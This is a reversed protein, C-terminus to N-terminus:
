HGRFRYRALRFPRTEPRCTLLLANEEPREEMFVEIDVNAQPRWRSADGSKKPLNPRKVRQIQFYLFYFGCLGCFGSALIVDFLYWM